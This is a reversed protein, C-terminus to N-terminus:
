ATSLRSSRGGVLVSEINDRTTPERRLWELSLPGWISAKEYHWVADSAEPVTYGLRSLGEEIIQYTDTKTLEAKRSRFTDLARKSDRELLAALVNVIVTARRDDPLVASLDPLRRVVLSVDRVFSRCFHPAFEPKQMVKGWLDEFELQRYAAAAGWLSRGVADDDHHEELAANLLPLAEIPKVVAVLRLLPVLWEKDEQSLGSRDVFARELLSVCADEIARQVVTFHEGRLWVEVILSEPTAREDAPITLWPDSGALRRTIWDVFGRSGGNAGALNAALSAIDLTGDELFRFEVRGPGRVVGGDRPMGQRRLSDM